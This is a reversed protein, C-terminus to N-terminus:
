DVSNALKKKKPPKCDKCFDALEHLERKVEGHLTVLRDEVFGLNTEEAADSHRGALEKQLEYYLPEFFSISSFAGKNDYMSKRFKRSYLEILDFEYRAFNLLKKMSSESDALIVAAEPVFITNVKTNFNKSFMFEANSMQFSFDMQASSNIYNSQAGVKTKPSAFDQIGLQYDPSWHIRQQAFSRFSCLLVFAFLFFFKLM